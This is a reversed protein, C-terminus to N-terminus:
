LISLFKVLIARNLLHTLDIMEALANKIGLDFLFFKPAAIQNFHVLIAIGQLNAKSQLSRL